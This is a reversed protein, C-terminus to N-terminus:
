KSVKYGALAYYDVERIGPKKITSWTLSVNIFRNYSYNRIIRIENFYGYGGYKLDKHEEM